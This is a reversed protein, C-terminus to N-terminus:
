RAINLVKLQTYELLGYHGYEVGLGSSKFGGFPADSRLAGHTNVWSTGCDLLAAVKRAESEEGWVSGGLGFETGNARAVAEDVSDYDIVPLVPGFQEDLELRTGAPLDTVISPAHFYGPGTPKGGAIVRAGAAGAAAVLGTVWALQDRSVVPGLDTAPDLGNGVVQARALEALADVLEARQHRSVYIRKIAACFQGSNVMAAGFLQPAIAAIDADPLVVAADNGGLELVVRKFDEAASRAIARGAGVSGTFSVMRVGPHTSLKPGLDGAGSIVNLVGAPVADRLLEGMLLTSLPTIPSPKLVVSNGALLAPALKTVSLIIPFNNPAIAAVVGHPVREMSVSSQADEAFTESTLGLEATWGFWDAALRVEATAAALTKGQERTLLEAVRDIGDALAAGCALLVERRNAQSTAAWRSQAQAAAAVASELQADTCEPGHAFVTGLAPDEVGIGTGPAGAVPRGAITMAHTMVHNDRCRLVV